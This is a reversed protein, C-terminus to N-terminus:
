EVKSVEERSVEVLAGDQWAYISRINWTPCCEGDGKGHGIYEMVVQSDIITLTKPQIRDEVMVAPAVAPKALVDLVPALYTFRGSGSTNLELLAVADEVGDGNLNGLAIFHDLLHVAITEADRTEILAGDVLTVDRDDFLGRYSLNGLTAVLTDPLGAVAGEGDDGFSDPPAPSFVMTGSDAVLDIHLNGDQFFYLAAGSLLRVFQDSRSDPLCAAATMPGMQIELKGGEGQYSGVANNCDAVVNVTADANFQVRYSLPADVDFQDEPSTFSVWQWPNARLQTLEATPPPAPAATAAETAVDTESSWTNDAPNADIFIGGDLTVSKVEQDTPITVTVTQPSDKWVGPGQRFSEESDDAYVVKVDFPIAAGGVNAVQIAYGDDTAQVDAIAIDLYHTEYFWNQFFWNLELDSTDDFTNFMDWPLPRKGQWRDMFTHLSIKFADDGMYEKLALYSLAAKEYSDRGTAFGRTADAPMIMPIAEGIYPLILNGSRLKIFLADAAEQGLDELNFLYEFATTWGEDMAPYRREDIGMYFPFYNHLLEHAAVFRVTAGEVGFTSDDNALMPFEEDGGGVFVNAHSYPWPVGPWESSAFTLIDKIDQAMQAFGAFEPSYAANVQVRRDDAPDVVVSGADWAYHDSLGLAVDPVNEAQWQWTVTDTQATILGRQLEEVTAVAIIEDSTRSELLRAAAEPQLVEDPNQLDGTAWVLFNKPVTVSFNFDAFDNNLERGSVYTYEEFDWGPLANLSADTDSYTGIRPFFYAIFFTTPDFVGDRNYELGLDYHWKFTFVASEGPMLPQALPVLKVTEYPLISDFTAWPMVQGDVSFEDIQIGDTLFDPTVNEERIAEPLRANQYLRVVVFPLPNPSNNTYTVVQAGTVTRGPPAVEIAIDHVSHNQWYNEGPTGDANRTGLTTYAPAVYRPMRLAPEDTPADQAHAAAFGTLLMLTALLLGFLSRKM